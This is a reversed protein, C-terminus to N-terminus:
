RILTVSGTTKIDISSQVGSEFSTFVSSYIYTGTPATAGKYTGDWGINPDSTEFVLQGWRNFINLQYKSIASIQGVVKFTQNEAKNGQPVFANPYSLKSYKIFVTDSNTCCNFDIVKCIYMGEHDADLYRGSSLNPNWNYVDYGEGADLRVSSNPLIYITDKGAGIDISPLPNIVVPETFVYDIGNYTETLEVQYEGPDSFIFRPKMLDSLFGIGAPDKFNWTPNVNAKNRIEFKTTDNECQSYYYFHPINLFDSMFDPLGGQTEAGMLFMGNNGSGNLENYNCGLGDRDPNYIVGLNPLGGGSQRAKTVYIKGDVSLQMGQMTSDQLTANYVFQNIITPAAFPDAATIDFQYLYSSSDKLLPSTTLYLKTNNPSFELGFPLYFAGANSSVVNSLEGTANNFDYVEVVGDVPISIAIKSGDSSAKMYGVQNNLDGTQTYGITSVVPTSSVGSTDVLYAYFKNGSPGFGHFIAWYDKKNEHKIACMTKTNENFLFNNKSTVVGEPKNTFDITSYNIGKTLIGALYMNSTFLFYQKNNGPNPVIISTQGGLLAGNLGTGNEMVQYSKNWVTKGNSFFLLDGNADSIASSGSPMAYDLTTAAITPPDEKFYIRGKKGFIWTDAQHPKKYDCDTNQALAFTSSFFLITLIHLLQKLGKQKM